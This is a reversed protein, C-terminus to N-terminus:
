LVPCTAQWSGGGLENGAPGNQWRAIITSDAALQRLMHAPFRVLFEGPYAGRITPFGSYTMCRGRTACWVGLQDNPSPPPQLGAITTAAVPYAM